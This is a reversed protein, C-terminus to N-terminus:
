VVFINKFDELAKKLLVELESDVSKKVSLIEFIKPYKAEIFPYLESEFDTVRNVPVKDLYGKTGAFIIIIQKEVILPSYPLQKLIEIMRQGRLLQKKSVEDLDSAFQSFAQLERYQALELRLTGSVQKMAKVQAAGGRDRICM